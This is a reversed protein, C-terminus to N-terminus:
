DALYSFTSCASVFDNIEEQRIPQIDEDEDWGMSRLLAEEEVGAGISEFEQAPCPKEEVAEVHEFEHAPHAEELPLNAKDVSISIMSSDIICAPKVPLVDEANVPQPKKSAADETDALLPSPSADKDDVEARLYGEYLVDHSESPPIIEESDSSHRQSGECSNAEECSSSGNETFKFSLLCSNQQGDILSSPSEIATSSGNVSKSRLSEFFRLKNKASAKRDAFSGQLPHLARGNTGVKLKPNVVSKRMPEMSSSRGLVPSVPNSTSDKAATNVTGNHERSLIQLSGSQSPKILETKIPTRSSSSPQLSLQPAVKLPANSEGARAGKSKLKDM